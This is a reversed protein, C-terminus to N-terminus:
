ESDAALAQCWAIRIISLKREVSRASIGLRDAIEANTEGSMKSLVIQQLVDDGLKELLQDVSEKMQVIVDPALEQGAHNGIGAGGMSGDNGSFASEGRVHGGGRKIAQQKDRHGSVKCATM